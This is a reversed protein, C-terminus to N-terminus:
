FRSKNSLFEILDDYAPINKSSFRVEFIKKSTADLNYLTSVLLVFNCLDDIEIGKIVKVSNEHIQLFSRLGELSM